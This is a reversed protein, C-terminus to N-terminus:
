GSRCIAMLDTWFMATASFPVDSRLSPMAATWTRALVLAHGLQELLLKGNPTNRSNGGIVRRCLRLDVRTMLGAHVRNAEM